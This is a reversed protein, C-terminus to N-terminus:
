SISAGAGALAAGLEIRSVSGVLLRGHVTVVVLGCVGDPLVRLECGEAHENGSGLVYRLTVGNDL